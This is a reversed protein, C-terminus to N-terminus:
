MSAVFQSSFLHPRHWRTSGPITLMVWRDRPWPTDGLQAMATPPRTLPSHLTLGRCNRVPSPSGCETTALFSRAAIRPIAGERFSTTNELVDQILVNQSHPVREGPCWIVPTTLSPAGHEAAIAAPIPLSSRAGYISHGVTLIL